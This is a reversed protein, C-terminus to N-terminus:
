QWNGVLVYPAWFYPHPPLQTLEPLPPEDRLSQILSLQAQQLADAKKTAPNQLERYFRSMLKSTSVDEVSWLSGITSSGSRVAVGALGLVAREDGIATDCASLVILEPPTPSSNLLTGLTDLDITDRDGTVIFTQEPDSSFLGHTALHIIPFGAQLLQEVRQATFEQDLLQQSRPFITAIEELEQPVNNLAPFIEGRIEVQQSLGAALVKRENNATPKPNLLQLSPALAISYKELLYQKGDYLAAMPVNQLKGNLVFVLTEVRNDTLENALPEILWRYMSRLNPILAQTNEKVERPNLPTTSFINVASNNVSQNYLSDYLGNLTQEVEAEPVNTTFRKLPQGAVSLIVELRDSLVVPYIVAAQSDLDDIKVAVDATTSCPDQFFNDLEALQLSEIVQRALELNKENESTRSSDLTALSKTAALGNNTLLLDALSLYVPKVSQRFNFQVAQNNTNLDARLSQLTDFALSYSAIAEEQRKSQALLKGLQSQWLYSIERADGTANLAEALALAQDSLAIARELNGQQAYNEGLYGLAYSECRRDEIEQAQQLATQLVSETLLPKELRALSQAYNLHAYIGPATPSLQGLNDAIQEMLRTRMPVLEASLQAMFDDAIEVLMTQELRQWSQIRRSAQQQWWSEIEILLALHNLQAQTQTLLDGTQASALYAQFAAQYPLLANNPEQRDIIETIWDYSWRERKLNGLAQNVNGQALLTAGQESTNRTAVESLLLIKQAEVLLGQKQLIGGLSRLGIGEVVTIKTQQELAALLQEIAAGDCQPSAATEFAQLLSRCARPYLGLDQLVQSQNILSKIRGLRDGQSEFSDAAQQWATAALNLEGSQYLQQAQWSLTQGDAQSQAPLQIAIAFWASLM